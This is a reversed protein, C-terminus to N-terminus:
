QKESHSPTTTIDGGEGGTSPMSKQKIQCRIRGSAAAKYEELDMVVMVAAAVAIKKTQQIELHAEVPRREAMASVSLCRRIM